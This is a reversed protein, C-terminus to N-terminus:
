DHMHCMRCAMKNNYDEQNPSDCVSEADQTGNSLLTEREKAQNLKNNLDIIQAENHIAMKQWTQAEMEARVLCDQLEMTKKTAVALDADKKRMLSMLKSEYRQLLLVARQRTEEQLVTRLRDNQFQLYLNMEMSQRELEPVLSQSFDMSLFSPGTSSASSAGQNGNSGALFQFGQHHLSRTTPQLCVLGADDIGLVSSVRWDEAGCMNELCLDAQVAM